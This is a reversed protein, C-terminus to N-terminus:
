VAQDLGGRDGRSGLAIVGFVCEQVRRPSEIGLAFESLALSRSRLRILNEESITHDLGYIIRLAEHHFGDMPDRSPISRGPSVSPEVPHTAM